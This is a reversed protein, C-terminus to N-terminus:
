GIIECEDIIVPSLQSKGRKTYHKHYTLRFGFPVCTLYVELVKNEYTVAKKLLAKYIEKSDTDMQSTKNIQEIFSRISELQRSHFEDVNKCMSIKETIDAIEKDYRTVQDKLDDKSIIGELMLDVANQKKESLNSIQQELDTTDVDLSENQLDQIEQMLQEIIMERKSSIHEMIYKMCSCLVNESLFKNDCGSQHGKYGIRVEKGYAARNSCRLYLNNINKGGMKSFSTGCKGCYVKNSFWYSNSHRHGERQAKGHETIMQQARDFIDKSVIPEHHESVTIIPTDPNENTNKIIKKSLFDASRQKWQTLDGCYKDNKLIRVIADQRWIGGRSTRIGDKNLDRAISSSGKEEIVYENFIRRVIDAEEPIIELVGDKIHFGLLHSRGYVFGKEMKRRMGWKVRESTKRSEEQAISAMLTLRLEGDKDNTDIGDNMFIVNIKLDKLHRTYNLTDVTNRAFRSVEKTLITDIKGKECDAIMKNFGDRKKTSTGTIGEDYYVEVLEWEDHSSIFETFYARQASLSHLQDEQDTSVRAYAAVRKKNEKNKYM